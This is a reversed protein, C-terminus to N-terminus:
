NREEIERLSPLPLVGLLEAVFLQIKEGYADFLDGPDGDTCVSETVLKTLMIATANLAVNGDPELDCMFHMTKEAVEFSKNLIERIEVANLRLPEKM